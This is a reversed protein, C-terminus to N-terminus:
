TQEEAIGWHFLIISMIFAWIAQSQLMKQLHKCLRAKVATYHFNHHLFHVKCAAPSIHGILCSGGSAVTCSAAPFSLGSTVAPAMLLTFALRETDHDVAAQHNPQEDM